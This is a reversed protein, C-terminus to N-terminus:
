VLVTNEVKVCSLDCPEVGMPASRFKCKLLQLMRCLNRGDRLYIPCLRRSSFGTVAGGHVM